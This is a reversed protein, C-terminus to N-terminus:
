TRITLAISAGPGLRGSSREPKTLRRRSSPSAPPTPAAAMKLSQALSLRTPEIESDALPALGGDVELGVAVVASRAPTVALGDGSGM